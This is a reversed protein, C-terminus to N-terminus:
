TSLQSWRSVNGNPGVQAGSTVAGNVLRRVEDEDAGDCTVDVTLILAEGDRRVGTHHPWRCPGDHEWHGCLAVTIAGGPAREDGGPVLEIRYTLRMANGRGNM